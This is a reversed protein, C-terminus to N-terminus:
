LIIGGAVVPEYVNAGGSSLSGAGGGGGMSPDLATTVYDQRVCYGSDKCIYVDGTLTNCRTKSTTEILEGHLKYCLARLEERSSQYHTVEIDALAVGATALFTLASFLTLIRKHNM